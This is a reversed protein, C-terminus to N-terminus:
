YWQETSSLDSSFACLGKGKLDGLIYLHVGTKETGKKRSDKGTKCVTIEQREESRKRKHTYQTHTHAMHTWTNIYTCMYSYNFYM